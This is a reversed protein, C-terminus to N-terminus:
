LEKRKFYFRISYYRQTTLFDKEFQDEHIVNVLEFGMKKFYDLIKFQQRDFDDQSIAHGDRLSMDLTKDLSYVAGDSYKVVSEYHDIFNTLSVIAFDQSLHPAPKDDRSVQAYLRASIFLILLLINLKKL